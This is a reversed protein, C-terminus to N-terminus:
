ASVSIIQELNLYRDMNVTNMIIEVMFLEGYEWKLSETLMKALSINRQHIKKLALVDLDAIISYYYFYFLHFQFM